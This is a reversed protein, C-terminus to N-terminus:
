RFVSYGRQQVRERGWWRGVRMRLRPGEAASIVIVVGFWLSYAQRRLDVTRAEAAMKQVVGESARGNGADYRM